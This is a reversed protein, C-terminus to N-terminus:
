RTHVDLIFENRSELAHQCAGLNEPSPVRYSGGPHPSALRRGPGTCAAVNVATLLAAMGGTTQLFRRRDIGLRDAAAAARALVAEALQRDGAGASAPLFEGNSVPGLELPLQIRDNDSTVDKAM